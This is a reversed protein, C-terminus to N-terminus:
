DGGDTLAPRLVRAGHGRAGQVSAPRDLPFDMTQGAVLEARNGDVMVTVPPAADSEVSIKLLAHSLELRIEHSRYNFSFAISAVESPM